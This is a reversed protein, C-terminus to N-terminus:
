FVNPHVRFKAIKIRFHIWYTFTVAFFTLPEIASTLSSSLHTVLLFTLHPIQGFPQAHYEARRKNVMWMILNKVERVETKEDRSVIM